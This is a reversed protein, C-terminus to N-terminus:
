PNLLLDPPLAPRVGDLFWPRLAEILSALRELTLPKVLYLEAGAEYARAVDSPQTSSTLVAARVDLKERRIRDLVELGGLRPLRLDLFLHTPRPHATRDAFAGRGAVCDLADAGSGAMRLASPFGAKRFARALFIGQDPDDDVALVHFSAM